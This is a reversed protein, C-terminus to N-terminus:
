SCLKIAPFLNKLFSSRFQIIKFGSTVKLVPLVKLVLINPIIQHNESEIEDYQFIKINNTYFRVWFYCNQVPLAWFFYNQAMKLFNRSVEKRFSRFYRNLGSTRSFDSIRLNKITTIISYKKKINVALIRLVENQEGLIKWILTFEM